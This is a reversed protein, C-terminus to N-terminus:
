GGRNYGRVQGGPFRRAKLFGNGQEECLLGKDGCKIVVNGVGCDLFYMRLKMCSEREPLWCQRRMIPFFSDVFSM